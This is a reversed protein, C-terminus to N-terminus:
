SQGSELEELVAPVLDLVLVEMKSGWPTTLSIEISFCFLVVVFVGLSKLIGL